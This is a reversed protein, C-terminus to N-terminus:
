PRCGAVRDDAIQDMTAGCRSCGEDLEDSDDWRHADVAAEM